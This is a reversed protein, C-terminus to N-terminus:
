EGREDRGGSLFATADMKKLAEEPRKREANPVGSGDGIFLSLADAEKSAEEPRKREAGLADAGEAKEISATEASGNFRAAACGAFVLAAAMVCIWVGKM